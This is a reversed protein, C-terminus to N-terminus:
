SRNWCFRCLWRATEDLLGTRGAAILESPRKDCKM